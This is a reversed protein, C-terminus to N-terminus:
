GCDRTTGKTMSTAASIVARPIIIASKKKWLKEYMMMDNQNIAMRRLYRSLADQHGDRYYGRQRPPYSVHELVDRVYEYRSAYDRRHRRSTSSASRRSSSSLGQEIEGSIM